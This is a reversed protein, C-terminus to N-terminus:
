QSFVLPETRLVLPLHAQPFESVSQKLHVSGNLNLFLPLVIQGSFLPRVVANHAITFLRRM